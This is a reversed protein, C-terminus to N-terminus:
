RGKFVPTRGENAAQQPDALDAAIGSKNRNLGHFIASDGKWFPPKWGRAYVGEGPKELKIVEAGLEALILGAYPGAVSHGIELVTM